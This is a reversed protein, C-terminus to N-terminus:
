SQYSHFHSLFRISKCYEVSDKSICLGGNSVHRSCEGHITDAQATLYVGGSMRVLSPYSKADFHVV